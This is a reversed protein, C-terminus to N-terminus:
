DQVELLFVNQSGLIGAGGKVNSHIGIPEAFPDGEYYQNYSVSKYYMYLDKSIQNLEIRTKSDSGNYLKFRIAHNKGNFLEDNFIGYTNMPVDSFESDEDIIKNFNMVPDNSELYHMYYQEGIVNGHWDYEPMITYAKVQYYNSEAKDNITLLIENSGPEVRAVTATAKEPITTNAYLPSYEPHNVRFEYTKGAQPKLQHSQYFGLYQHSLEELMKGDSWVSVKADGLCIIPNNEFMTNSRTIQCKILSDPHLSANLVMFNKVNEGKYTIEEECSAFTIILCIILLPIYKTM